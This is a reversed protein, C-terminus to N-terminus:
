FSDTQMPQLVSDNNNLVLQKHSRNMKRKRKRKPVKRRFTASLHHTHPNSTSLMRKKQTQKKKDTIETALELDRKNISNNLFDCFL